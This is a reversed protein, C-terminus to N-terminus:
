EPAPTVTVVIDLPAQPTGHAVATSVATAEIATSCTMSDVFPVNVETGDPLRGDPLTPNLQRIRQATVRYMNAFYDMSQGGYVTLSTPCHNQYFGDVM